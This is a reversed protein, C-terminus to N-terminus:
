RRDPDTDSSGQNKIYSILVDISASAGVSIITSGDNWFEGGWLHQQLYDGYEKRMHRSSVSKINKIFNTLNLGPHGDFLVHIHDGEGGLEIPECEWKVLLTTLIQKLRDHMEVTLINKRYKLTLILHYCLRFTMHNRSKLRLKKDQNM